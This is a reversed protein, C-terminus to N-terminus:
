GKTKARDIARFVVALEPFASAAERARELTPRVYELYHTRGRRVAQDAFTGVAKLSRQVLALRTEAAFADPDLGRVGGFTELLSEREGPALFRHVDRDALLSVPDYAAPGWRADQFDIVRLRGATVYLNDIHFDRHTLVAPAAALTGALWALALEIATAEMRALQVGSLDRLYREVFMRLERNFVEADFRVHYAHVAPTLSSTGLTQLREVMGLAAAFYARRASASPATELARRLSVDGLDELAVVGLDPAEDLIRPPELGIEELFRAISTFPRSRDPATDPEVLLVETRAPSRAFRFYSRTSADGQIPSLEASSAGRRALYARAREEAPLPTM